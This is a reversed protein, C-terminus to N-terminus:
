KKAGPPKALADNPGDEDEDEISFEMLEVPLGDASTIQVFGTSGGEMPVGWFWSCSRDTPAIVNARAVLTFTATPGAVSTSTPLCATVNMSSNVGVNWTPGGMCQLSASCTRMTGATNNNCTVAGRVCGAIGADATGSASALPSLLCVTLVTAKLAFAKLVFAKLVFVTPRTVRPM